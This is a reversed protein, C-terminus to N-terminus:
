EPEARGAMTTQLSRIADYDVSAVPVIYLDNSNKKIFGAFQVIEYKETM